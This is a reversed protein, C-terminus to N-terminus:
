RIYKNRSDRGRQLVQEQELATTSHHSLCLPVQVKVPPTYVQTSFYFHGRKLTPIEKGSGGKQQIQRRVAEISSIANVRGYFRNSCGAMIGHDIRGPEQTAFVLGLGYQGAQACLRLLIRSCLAKGMAPIFEKVEDIVLLGRVPASNKKTWNYLNIALQNIFQQREKLESIGALSFVSIRTRGSPKDLGFLVSPDLPTRRELGPTWVVVETGAHYAAARPTDDPNWKDPVVPWPDSLRVFDNTCDIVIAPIGKLAAEEVLRKVLVTRGSGSGALVMTHATLSPIAMSIKRSFEKGTIEIGVPINGTREPSSAQGPERILSEKPRTDDTLWTTLRRFYGLKSVIKERILWGEFDSDKLKEMESLAWLSRVGEFSLPELIGGSGKFRGLLALTEGGSPIEGQRLIVLHRSRLGSDMGSATMAARLRAQFARSNNKQIGRACFHKERNNQDRYTVCVRAHLTRYAAGGPFQTEVTVDLRDSMPIEKVLCRCATQVLTKLLDDENEPNLIDNVPAQDYITKFMEGLGEWREPSTTEEGPNPAEVGGFSELEVINKTNLCRQRFHDCRKLIERPFLTKATDFALPKIPWTPYPPIFGLREYAHAIRPGIIQEAIDGRSIPGLLLPPKFRDMSSKLARAQFFAWTAELCAAVTITRSTMDRLAMLGAAIKEVVALSRKEQDSAPGDLPNGCKVSHEAVIADFQDLALVVPFKLSMLWSLGRIIDTHRGRAQNFGHTRRHSEEIPQGQLWLYGLDRERFDEANFLLFARIVDQFPPSAQRPFRRRLLTIIKDRLQQVQHKSLSSMKEVLRERTLRKKDLTVNVMGLLHYFVVQSQTKGQACPEQLSGLYGLVVTEYFDSVDTMDVLVFGASRNFIERRLEGLFHTKGAGAPGLIVRGLLSFVEKSDVLRSFDGLIEDRIEKNLGAANFRVDTWIGKVHMTWDFDIQRLVDLEEM